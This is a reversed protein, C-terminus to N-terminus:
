PFSVPLDQLLLDGLRAQEQDVEKDTLTREQHRYILRLTLNRKSSDQPQYLDQLSFKHLIPSGAEQIKDQLQKFSVEAGAVITMDRVVPPFKPWPQYSFEQRAQLRFLLDLDLEALWVPYRLREQRAIKSDLSGMVGLQSGYLEIGVAPQLFPHEQQLNCTFEPLLLRSFLHELLGKLEAFDAEQRPWPWREPQRLGHLALGLLNRERARTESGSDPEFCRALEFLQQQTNGQAANWALSQLLGPSLMPRMSDQDSSLPNQIRLAKQGDLGLRTLDRQGVFSFNIVEQLGQGQAWTKILHLFEYGAQESAQSDTDQDLPRRISPPSSAIEEFGYFRGIEEILDVERGLDQRFSPPQVLWPSDQGQDISCGLGQLINRCFEEDLELALLQAARSPRFKIKPSQWPRPEQRCVGQVIKAGSLKQLLHCARQLARESGAQDVGREFRFASESGLALRRCTKRIRIPDFVACELVVERTRPSIETNAGGMIGALAVPKEQDWILLDEPLLSQTQGDLTTFERKEGSCAVQILKGFLLGRDFAHLPQGLELLVYNTVDVINNVPRLGLSLLRKRLWFPSPGLQPQTLIRAQYLPCLEPEQIQVKLLESCEPPEDQLATEPPYLPLDFAASVERAIGQVSLCDGRNPTLGIDLIVDELDLAKLLSQGAELGPELLMIGTHDEGLGLEKESLIMGQSKEGRIKAKKIRTGDPLSSGAPAVPVLQGTAVNPAGCVIDLEQEQGLNVRCLKLQDAGSHTRCETIRGVQMDQLHSFPISQEEVELGLMTLKHALEQVSGQYPTLEQLWNVSLLM